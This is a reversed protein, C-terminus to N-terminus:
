ETFPQFAGKELWIWQRPHTIGFLLFNMTSSDPSKDPMEAKANGRRRWKQWELLRQRQPTSFHVATQAVYLLDVARQPARAYM